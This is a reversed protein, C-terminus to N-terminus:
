EIKTEESILTTGYSRTMEQKGRFVNIQANKLLLDHVLHNLRHFNRDFATFCKRLCRKLEHFFKKVKELSSLNLKTTIDKTTVSPM